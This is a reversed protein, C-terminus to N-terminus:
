LDKFDPKTASLLVCVIRFLPQKTASLSMAKNYLMYQDESRRPFRGEGDTICAAAHASGNDLTFVWSLGTLASDEPERSSMGPIFSHASM